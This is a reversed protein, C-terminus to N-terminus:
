RRRHTQPRTWSGSDLQDPRSPQYDRDLTPTTVEVSADPEQAKRRCWKVASAFDGGQNVVMGGGDMISHTPPLGDRMPRGCVIIYGAVRAHQGVEIAEPDPLLGAAGDPRLDAGQPSEGHGALESAGGAAGLHADVPHRFEGNVVDKPGGSVALASADPSAIVGEGGAGAGHLRPYVQASQHNEPDSRYLM